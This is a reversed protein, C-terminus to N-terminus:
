RSITNELNLRAPESVAGRGDVYCFTHDRELADWPIAAGATAEEVRERDRKLRLKFIFQHNCESLTYLPVGHPRQTAVWLGVGSARGQTALIKEGSCNPVDLQEDVYVVRNGAKLAWRFFLEAHDEDVLFNPDVRYVYRGARIRYIDRGDLVEGVDGWKEVRKTDLVIANRQTRLLAKAVETKGSGSPGIFSVREGRAIEPWAFPTPDEATV